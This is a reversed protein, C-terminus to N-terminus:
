FYHQGSINFSHAELTSLLSWKSISSTNELLLLPLIMALTLTPCLLIHFLTMHSTCTASSPLHPQFLLKTCYIFPWRWAGWLEEWIWLLFSPGWNCSPPVQWLERCIRMSINRMLIVNLLISLPAFPWCSSKGFHFCCFLKGSQWQSNFYAM